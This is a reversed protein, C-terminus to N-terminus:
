MISSPPIYTSYTSMRTPTPTVPGRLASMGPLSAAFTEFDPTDPPTLMGHSPYQGKQPTQFPGSSMTNTIHKEGFPSPMECPPTPPAAYVRNMAAHQALFDKLILSVRSHITSAYKRHLVGSPQQLQKSLGVLTQSDYKASWEYPLPQQRDLIIRSLALSSRAIDSPRKAVFDRQFLSIESIYLALHKLEADHVSDDMALQMFSDITPHGIVWNLTQLVHWEMQTFMDEEYLGCCMSSLERITPVKDKLDGYKAAILLAACGVLQYHKKYVIRKSCYRDLINVTLFLTEPLLGFATHAEILFDLLYPRMFWQIETQVDISAVDPLTALQLRTLM